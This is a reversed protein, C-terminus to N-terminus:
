KSIKNYIWSFLYGIGLVGLAINIGNKMAHGSNIYKAAKEVCDFQQKSIKNSDFVFKKKNKDYAKEFLNNFYKGYREDSVEISAKVFKKAKDLEMKPMNETLVKRDQESLHNDIKLYYKLVEDSNKLNDIEKYKDTLWKTDKIFDKDKAETLNVEINRIFEDRLKGNSDLYSNGFKNWLIGTTAGAGLSTLGIALHPYNNQTQQVNAM